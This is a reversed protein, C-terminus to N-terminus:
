RWNNWLLMLGSGLLLALVVADFRRADLRQYLWHGLRAGIMTGPLAIAFAVLFDRGMLGGLASAVLMASLISLNFTQFLMRKTEKDFDRLGAWITPLAGSIGAIGGLIGSAFGILVSSTTGSRTIRLRGRNFLLFACYVVLIVGIGLKFARISVHPLLAVGVPVGLLGALIYPAVDRWRITAWIAPLTQLQGAVGGAAALQAAVVPSVAALWIPIATLGTGFGTLGNALGGAFAGLLIIAIDYSAM